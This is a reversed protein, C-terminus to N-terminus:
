RKKMDVNASFVMTTKERNLKQGSAVDYQNLLVQLRVNTDVDATCFILSDDAFLLHNLEPAGRCIQIGLVSKSREAERM